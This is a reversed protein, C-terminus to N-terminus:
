QNDPLNIKEIPRVGTAIAILDNIHKQSGKEAYKQKWHLITEKKTVNYNVGEFNIM